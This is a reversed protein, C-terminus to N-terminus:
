IILQAQTLPIRQDDSFESYPYKFKVLNEEMQTKAFLPASKAPLANIATCFGAAIVVLSIAIVAVPSKV